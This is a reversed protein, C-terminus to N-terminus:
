DGGAVAKVLAAGREAGLALKLLEAAQAEKGDGRLRLSAFYRGEALRTRFRPRALDSLFDPVGTKGSLMALARTEFRDETRVPADRWVPLPDGGRANVSEGLWMRARDSLSPDSSLLALKLFEEADRGQARRALGLWLVMFDRFFGPPGSRGLAKALVREARDFRGRAALLYGKAAPVSPAEPALAKKMKGFTEEAEDLAGREVRMEGLLWLAKVRGPDNLAAARTAEEEAEELRGAEWCLVALGYRPEFYEPDSEACQRFLREQEGRDPHLRAYLYVDLVTAGKAEARRRYEERLATERGARRAADQHDRHMRGLRRRIGTKDLGKLFDPNSSGRLALQFFDAAEAWKKRAALVKGMLAYESTTSQEGALRLGQRVEEEAEALRGLRLLAGGLQFRFPPYGPAEDRAESFRLVADAYKRHGLAAAGARAARRAEASLESGAGSGSLLVVALAAALALPIGYALAAVLPLLARSLDGHRWLSRLNTLQASLSKFFPLVGWWGWLATYVISRLVIRRACRPCLNLIKQGERGAVLFGQIRRHLVTRHGEGGCAM